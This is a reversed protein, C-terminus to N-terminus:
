VWYCRNLGQVSKRLGAAMLGLDAVPAQDGESFPLDAGVEGFTTVRYVDSHASLYEMLKELRRIVVKDPRMEGYTEDRPKVASFSHFVIVFHRQGCDAGNEMMSRLEPVSLSCPDAIKFGGHGEPLPSRAVTVPIEWVGEINCVRNPELTGDPFSLSPYCPNFSTDFLIGLHKLCRMTTKSAAYCGARFAVPPRGAFKQYLECARELLATQRMEDFQGILDNSQPVHYM